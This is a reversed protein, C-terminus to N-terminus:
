KFHEAKAIAADAARCLACMDEHHTNQISHDARLAKLAALLEDRQNATKGYMLVAKDFEEQTHTAM